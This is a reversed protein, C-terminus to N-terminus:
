RQHRSAVSSVCLQGVAPCFTMLAERVRVDPHRLRRSRDCRGSESFGGPQPRLDAQEAEAARGPLDGQHMRSISAKAAAVEIANNQRYKM